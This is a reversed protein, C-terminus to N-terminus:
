TRPELLQGILTKALWTEYKDPSWGAIEVLEQYLESRTLALYIAAAQESDIDSRLGPSIARIFAQLSRRRGALAAELEEAAEPDAAAAGSYINVMALSTEWQRRTAHAALQLQKEPHPEALAREYIERQGSQLHWDERIASLIGRKNKFIAYVTSISVGAAESIVEMTTAGYGRELFLDRATSVILQKTALAQRQRHTLHQRNVDNMM